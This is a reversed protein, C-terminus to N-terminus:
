RSKKKAQDIFAAGLATGIGAGMILGWLFQDFWVMGIVMGLGAGLSIWTGLISDSDEPKDAAEEPANETM